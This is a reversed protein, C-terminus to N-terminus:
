GAWRGGSRLDVLYPLFDDSLRKACGRSLRRGPPAADCSDDPPVPDFPHAHPIAAIEYYRHVPGVRREEDGGFTLDVLRDSSYELQWQIVFYVQAASAHQESLLEDYEADFEQADKLDPHEVKIFNLTELEKKAFYYLGTNGPGRWKHKGYESQWHHACEHVMRSLCSMNAPKFKDTHDLTSNVGLADTHPFRARNIEIHGNGGYYASGKSSDNFVSVYVDCPDISDWFVLRFAERELPSLPRPGELPLPM